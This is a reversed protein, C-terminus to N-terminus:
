EDRKIQFEVVYQSLELALGRDTTLHYIHRNGTIKAAEKPDLMFHICYKKKFTNLTVCAEGM